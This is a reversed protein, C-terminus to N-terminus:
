IINLFQTLNQTNCVTLYIKKRHRTPTLVIKINLLCLNQKNNKQPFEHEFADWIDVVDSFTATTHDFSFIQYIVFIGIPYQM